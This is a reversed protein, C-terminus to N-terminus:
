LFRVVWWGEDKWVDLFYEQVFWDIDIDLPYLRIMIETVDEFLPMDKEDVRTYFRVRYKGNTKRIMEAVYHSGKLDGEKKVM